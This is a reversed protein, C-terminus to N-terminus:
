QQLTVSKAIQVATAPPIEGVVTVVMRNNEELRQSVASTAGHTRRGEAAIKPDMNELFVSFAALGDSFVQTSAQVGDVSRMEKSSLSFGSPLWTVQWDKMVPQAGPRVVVKQPEPKATNTASRNIQASHPTKSLDGDPAFEKVDIEPMVDLTVFEFVELDEGETNTTVAKVLLGSERDLWFQYGYRDPSNPLVDVRVSDRGAVRDTGSKRVKYAAPIAFSEANLENPKLSSNMTSLEFSSVANKQFRNVQNGRRVIESPEGSLHVLREWSVGDVVGHILEVTNFKDGTMMISRGRYSTTRQSKAMQALWQEATADNALPVNEALGHSAFLGSCAFAAALLSNKTMNM